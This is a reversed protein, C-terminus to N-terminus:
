TPRNASRLSEPAILENMLNVEDITLEDVFDDPVADDAKKLIYQIIIFSKDMASLSDPLANRSNLVKWDKVKMPLAKSLDFARGALVVKMLDVKAADM